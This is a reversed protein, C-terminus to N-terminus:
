RSSARWPRGRYGPNAFLLQVDSLARERFGGECYCLYFRWLRRFREDYGLMAIDSWQAEFRQRWAELTRAYDAGLDELNVAVLSSARAASAALASVCPIFSGPFVHKKIFDVSRLAQLYRSDEITIAQLLALGSDDLLRGIAAFYEDLHNAGVAEVMEVSVLKSYRGTLQRYDVCLVQVRDDLGAQTVRARTYEHQERSITTTTVRCGSERAAHIALGGWGSGIELLHDGAHLELKALIRDLKRRSACELDDHEGEFMASSYQMRSDLMREFLGNGLDYHAAINRRSGRSSNDRWLTHALRAAWGALRAAGGELGDTAGRNRVLLRVLGVLDDCDWDGDVYSEGAGLTGGRVIRRYFRRDHVAVDICPTADGVRLAVDADRVILGGGVIGDLRAALLRRCGADLWPTGPSVSDLVESTM